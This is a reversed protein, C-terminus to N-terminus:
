GLWQPNQATSDFKQSTKYLEYKGERAAPATRELLASVQPGSLPQFTRAAKLAQELIPLSDCGTIVVSVPLSMAYHLCEVPSVAKSDLIIHDGMPKMGLVGLHQELAVPLVKKEFSEYHADMVNLPMQVTDFHFQHAKATDLMKRHIDPSKHGTFGIYRLKGANKAELVAELAGGPAFIRDPDELRIIEHFQLLDVHDVQLRKLSEDLQQAASKKTRGDIKTMLFAKQRYGDRLAKGMRIESQGDNYDWSNDLFNMGQDLATRIIRLSEQEDSQKGIHSGGLGVLSVKEGTRGLTRHPIVGQNTELEESTGHM